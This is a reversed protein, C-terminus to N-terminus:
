CVTKCFWWWSKRNSSLYVVGFNSIRLQYHYKRWFSRIDICIVRACFTVERNLIESSQRVFPRMVRCAVRVMICQIIECNWLAARIRWILAGPLSVSRFVQAVQMQYGGCAARTSINKKKSSESAEKQQVRDSILACRTKLRLM